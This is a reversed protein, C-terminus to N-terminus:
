AELLPAELGVELLSAPVEKGQAALVKLQELLAHSLDQSTQITAHARAGLASNIEATKNLVDALM